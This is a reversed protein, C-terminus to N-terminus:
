SPPRRSPRLLSPARPMPCTTTWSSCAARAPVGLESMLISKIWLKEDFWNIMAEGFVRWSRPFTGLVNLLIREFKVFPKEYFVVYDLDAGDIGATGPLVSPTARSLPTTSRAPSVSKRAAAVLMGDKLLAAASDHYFCSVGLVHMLVAQTRGRAGGVTEGRAALLRRPDGEVRAPRATAQGRHRVAGPDHLLVRDDCRARDRRRDDTRHAELDGLRPAPGEM